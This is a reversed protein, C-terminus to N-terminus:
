SAPSDGNRLYFEGFLEKAKAEYAASAEEINDFLGLYVKKGNYKVEAVYKKRLLSVGKRGSTNNKRPYSYRANQANTAERLNCFRNDHRIHNIHDTMEKPFSGTMYLWALRHALYLKKDIGISIYGNNHSCGAIDGVKVNSAVKVKRVFDGVEPDYDFLYKLRAQTIM